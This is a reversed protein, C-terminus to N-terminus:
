TALNTPPGDGPVLYGLASALVTTLAATVDSPLPHGNAAMLWAVVVM